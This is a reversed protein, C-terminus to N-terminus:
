NAKNGCAPCDMWDFPLKTGCNPCERGQATEPGGDLRSAPRHRRNDHNRTSSNQHLM